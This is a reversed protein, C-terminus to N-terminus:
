LSICCYPSAQVQGGASESQFSRLNGAMSARLLDAYELALTLQEEPAM